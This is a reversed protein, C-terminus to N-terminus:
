LLCLAACSYFSKRTMGMIRVLQLLDVQSRLASPHWFRIWTDSHSRVLAHSGPHWCPLLAPPAPVSTGSCLSFLIEDLEQTKWLAVLSLKPHHELSCTSNSSPAPWLATSWTVTTPIKSAQQERFYVWTGKKWQPILFNHLSLRIENISKFCTKAYPLWACWSHFLFEEKTWSGPIQRECWSFCTVFAPKTTTSFRERKERGWTWRTCSHM